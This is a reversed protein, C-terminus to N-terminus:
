VRNVGRSGKRPDPKPKYMCVTSSIDRCIVDMLSATIPSASASGDDSTTVCTALSIYACSRMRSSITCMSAKSNSTLKCRGIQRVADPSQLSVVLALFSEHVMM